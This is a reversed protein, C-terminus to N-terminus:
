DINRIAVIAMEYIMDAIIEIEADTLNEFQKFQRIEDTTLKNQLYVEYYVDREDNYMLIPNNKIGSPLDSTM